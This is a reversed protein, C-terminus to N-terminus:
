TAKLINYLASFYGTINAKDKATTISNAGIVSSIIKRPNKCFKKLLNKPLFNAISKDAINNARKCKEQECPILLTMIIKGRKMNEQKKPKKYSLCNDKIEGIM